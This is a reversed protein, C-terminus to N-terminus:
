PPPPHPRPRLHHHHRRRRAPLRHIQRPAVHPPHRLPLYGCRGSGYWRRDALELRPTARTERRGDGGGFAATRVGGAATARETLEGTLEPSSPGSGAVSPGSGAAASGCGRAALGERRATGGGQAPSSGGDPTKAGGGGDWRGRPKRRRRPPSLLPPHRRGPALTRGRDGARPRSRRHERM